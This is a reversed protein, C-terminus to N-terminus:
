AGHWPSTHPFPPIAGPMRLRSVLHFHTTLKVSRDRRGGSSSDETGRSLLSPSGWLRDPQLPSSFFEMHVGTTWGM